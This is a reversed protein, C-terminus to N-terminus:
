VLADKIGYIETLPIIGIQNVAGSEPTFRGSFMPNIEGSTMAHYTHIFISNDYNLESIVFTAKGTTPVDILKRGHENCVILQSYNGYDITVSNDRGSWILEAKSGSAGKANTLGYAM